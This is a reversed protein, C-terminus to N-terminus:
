DANGTAHDMHQQRLNRDQERDKVDEAVQTRVQEDRVKGLAIGIHEITHAIKQYHPDDESGSVEAKFGLASLRTVAHGPAPHIERQQKLWLRVGEAIDDLADGMRKRFTIDNREQEAHHRRMELHRLKASLARTRDANHSERAISDLEGLVDGIQSEMSSITNNLSDIPNTEQDDTSM